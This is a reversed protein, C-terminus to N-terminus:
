TFIGSDDFAVDWNRVVIPFRDRSAAIRRNLVPDVALQAALRAGNDQDPAGRSPSLPDVILDLLRPVVIFPDDADVDM